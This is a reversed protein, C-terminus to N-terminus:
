TMLVSPKLFSGYVLCVKRNGQKHGRVLYFVERVPLSFADDGAKEMQKLIVSQKGTIIDAIRKSRSPITSNFSAVAYSNSDKLEILEGGTFENRQKNLRIAL